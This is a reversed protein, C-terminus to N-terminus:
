AYTLAFMYMNVIKPANPPESGIPESRGGRGQGNLVYAFIQCNKVRGRGRVCYMRM